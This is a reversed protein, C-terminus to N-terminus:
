LECVLLTHSHPPLVEERRNGAADAETWRVTVAEPDLATNASQPSGGTLTGRRVRRPACGDFRLDCREERDPSRNVASVFLKRGPADLVCAVDLWPVSVRRRFSQVDERVFIEYGDGIVLPDLVVGGTIGGVLRFVHWTPRKVVRGGACGIIGKGNVLPSFGGVDLGPTRMMEHLICAAYLADTLTIAADDDDHARRARVFDSMGAPDLAPGESALASRKAALEANAPNFGYALSQWEIFRDHDWEQLNWEDMAIGIPTGRRDKVYWSASRIAGDMEAIQERTVLPLAMAEAFSATRPHYSHLALFDFYEGAEKVLRFNWESREWGVAVLRITPDTKKMLRSFERVTDIYADVDKRGIQGRGYVENGIGWLPVAYPEPHGHAARLAASASSGARNCYEVWAAAEEASGSGANACIYPTVGTARCWAIYEDTGFSNPEEVQWELDFRVPRGARPGVGDRWHYGSAFNGGPWRLWPTGLERVAETVSRQPEGTRADVMGGYVVTGYHEVIHGLIGRRFRCRVREADIKVVAM